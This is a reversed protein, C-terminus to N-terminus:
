YLTAFDASWPRSKHLPNLTAVAGVGGLFTCSVEGECARNARTLNLSNFLTSNLGCKFFYISRWMQKYAGFALIKARRSAFKIGYFLGKGKRGGGGGGEEGGRNCFM